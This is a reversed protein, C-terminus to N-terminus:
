DQQSHLVNDPVGWKRLLADAQEFSSVFEVSGFLHMREEPTPYEMKGSLQEVIWGGKGQQICPHDVRNRVREACTDKPADFFVLAVGGRSPQHMYELWEKREASTLNCRDVLVRTKRSARSAVQICEKRGLEDQNAILLNNRFVAQLKNAFTSKGNGPLGALMLCRPVRNRASKLRKGEAAEQKRQAKSAKKSTPSDKSVGKLSTSTEKKVTDHISPLNNVDSQDEDGATAEAFCYCEELYTEHFVYDVTQKEIARRMWHGEQCGRVFDPRVVKVKHSMWDGDDQRLVVGEVTGDDNRFTSKTDLLSRIRKTFAECEKATPSSIGLKTHRKSLNEGQFFQEVGITPVVAIKSGRLAQHFRQRSYFKEEDVDYIDFAIFYDPLKHYPISHRGVVWEGYLIMNNGDLIDYLAERHLSIWEQVRNFQAHDGATVFHSRNFVTIQGSESLRFALNAGDIKEEVIVPAQIYNQFVSKLDPIILDDSAVSSGGMDCLHETRPYKILQPTSAEDKKMRSNNSAKKSNSNKSM